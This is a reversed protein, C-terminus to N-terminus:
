RGRSRRAIDEPVQLVMTGGGPASDPVPEMEITGHRGDKGVSAPRAPPTMAPPMPPPPPPLPIDPPRTRPRQSTPPGTPSPARQPAPPPAPETAPGRRAILAAAAEPSIAMTSGVSDDDDLDQSGAPRVVVHSPAAAQPPPAPPPPVPLPAAAPPPPAPPPPAPPPAPPAGREWPTAAKGALMKMAAEPDIAMTSGTSSEPDDDLDYLPPDDNIKPVSILPRGVPMTSSDKQYTPPPPPPAPPPPAAAPGLGRTTMRVTAPSGQRPAQQPSQQTAHTPPAAFAVAQNPMEIGAVVRSASAAAENPFAMTGRWLVHVVREYGNIALTDLRMAVSAGDHPANPGFYRANARPGPLQCRVRPAGEILNELILVEDGQLRSVQQDVPASLFLGWSLEAPMEPRTGLTMRPDGRGLFRARAGWARSIPGYSAPANENTPDLVNPGRGQGPQVGVPNSMPEAWARDWSLPMSRFPAPPAGPAQRDGLVRLPRDFLPSTGQIALRTMAQPVPSPPFASGVFTVEARPKYPAIDVDALLSRSHPLFREEVVLDAPALLRAAGEDLAFSAKVVITLTTRGAHRWLVTGGSAAGVMEVDIPWPGRM